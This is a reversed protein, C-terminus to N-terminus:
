EVMVKGSGLIRNEDTLIRFLYVGSALNGRELDVNGNELDLEKLKRGLIDMLQLQYNGQPLGEVEITTHTSFPNPFILISYGNDLVEIDTEVQEILTIIATNTIIPPNFDFFISATNDVKTKDGVNALSAIAFTVFGHSEVENTTSDPLMIDDFYFTALGTQRNLVTRYDHSATIPRFTTWDLKKDLLDEIRINFATDNGTNQFRVTYYITDKIYAFESQGLLNSRVLKDNPDYSCLLESNYEDTLPYHSLQDNIFFHLTTKVNLIEGIHSEDPTQFHIEIRDNQSPYLDEFNWIWKGEEIEDPEPNSSVFALLEDVELSITGKAIATGTNRYDLWYSVESNCRTPNGLLFPRVETKHRQPAFGFLYPNATEEQLLNIEYSEDASTLKWIGISETQLVYEDPSVIYTFNGNSKSFTLNENPSLLIPHNVLPPENSERLGNENVDFYTFGVIPHKDQDITNEYWVLTKIFNGTSLVDLDGDLDLDVSHAYNSTINSIKLPTDFVGLETQITIYLASNITTNYLIDLLKDGNIDTLGVIKSSSGNEFVTVPASWNGMGDNKAVRIEELFSSAFIIDLDGDLDMDIVFDTSIAGIDEAIIGKAEFVGEGNNSFWEIRDELTTTGAIVDMTGDQNIDALKLAEIQRFNETILRSEGFAAGGKNPFWLIENDTDNVVVIDLDGDKDLDAVDLSEVWYLDEVIIIEPDFGQSNGPFWSLTEYSSTILDEYGDSDLDKIIVHSVSTHYIPKLAGFQKNGKNEHWSLPSINLVDLDGDKDVDMAFPTKPYPTETTIRNETGFANNGDGANWAITSSSASSWLIDLIQDQNLDAALLGSSLFSSSTIPEHTTFTGNGENLFYHINNESDPSVFVDIHGDGNLDATSVYKAWPISANIIQENGFSGDGQNSLWSVKTAIFDTFVIDTWGDGNLDAMSSKGLFFGVDILEEAQFVSAGMNEYKILKNKSLDLTIVDTDGDKDFDTLAFDSVGGSGSITKRVFSETGNNQHWFIGDGAIVIDLDGDGEMDASMIKSPDEFSDPIVVEETFVGNGNNVHWVIKYGGLGGAIVDIDGDKDFDLTTLIRPQILSSPIVIQFDFVGNGENPYWALKNDKSSVSLVDLAGDGDIDGVDIGQVTNARLTLLHETYQGYVLAINLFFSLNFLLINKM